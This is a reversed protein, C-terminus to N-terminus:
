DRRYVIINPISAHGFEKNSSHYVTYPYSGLEVADVTLTVEPSGPTLKVATNDKFINDDPFVLTVPTQTINKFTVIDGVAAVVQGPAVAVTSGEDFIAVVHKQASSELM